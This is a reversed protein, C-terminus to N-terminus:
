KLCYVWTILDHLILLAPCTARILSILPTYPTKTPFGSRFLGSPLGLCLHPYYSSPDEILSIHSYPSSQDPEALSLYRPKILGALFNTKIFHTFNRPYSFFYLTILFDRHVQHNCYLFNCTNNLTYRALRWVNISVLSV